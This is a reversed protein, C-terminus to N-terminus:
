FHGMERSTRNPINKLRLRTKRRGTHNRLREAPKGTDEFQENTKMRHKQVSDAVEMAQAQGGSPLIHDDTHSILLRVLVAHTFTEHEVTLVRHKDRKDGCMIFKEEAQGGEDTVIYLKLARGERRGQEDGRRGDLDSCRLGTIYIWSSRQETSVEGPWCLGGVKDAASMVLFRSRRLKTESLDRKM